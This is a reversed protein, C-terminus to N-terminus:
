QDFGMWLDRNAVLRGVNLLLSSVKNGFINGLGVTNDEGYRGGVDIDNVRFGEFEGAM